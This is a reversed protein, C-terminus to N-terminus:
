EESLADHLTHIYLATQQTLSKSATSNPVAKKFPPRNGNKVFLPTFDFRRRASVKWAPLWVEFVNHKSTEGSCAPMKSPSSVEPPVSLLHM